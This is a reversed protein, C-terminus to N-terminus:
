NPVLWALNVLLWFSAVVYLFVALRPMAYQMLKQMAVALKQVHVAQSKRSMEYVDRAGVSLIALEGHGGTTDM